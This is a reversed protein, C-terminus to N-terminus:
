EPDPIAIEKRSIGDKVIADLNRTQCKLLSVNCRYCRMEELLYMNKLKKEIYGVWERTLPTTFRTDRLERWLSSHESNLLLGEQKSVFLVHLMGYELRAMSTTFGADSPIVWGPSRLNYDGDSARKVKGGSAEIRMGKKSMSLLARMARLKNADGIVGIVHVRNTSDVAIRDYKLGEIEIDNTSLRLDGLKFEEDM